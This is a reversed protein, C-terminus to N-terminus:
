RGVDGGIGADVRRVDEKVVDTSRRQRRGGKRRDVRGGRCMDQVVRM